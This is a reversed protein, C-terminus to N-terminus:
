SSFDELIVDIRLNFNLFQYPVWPTEPPCKEPYSSTCLALGSEFAVQVSFVIQYTILLGSGYHAM